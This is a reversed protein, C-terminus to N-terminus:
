QILGKKVMDDIDLIIQKHEIHFHRYTLHLKEKISRIKFQCEFVYAKGEFKFEQKYDRWKDDDRVHKVDEWMALLIHRKLLPVEKIKEFKM